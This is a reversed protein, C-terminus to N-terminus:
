KRWRIDGKRLRTEWKKIMPGRRVANEEDPRFYLTTATIQELNEIALVRVAMCSSDLSEVLEADGGTELQKQSFGTLMRQLPISNASDMRLISEHVQTASDVSWDVMTMLVRYHDNWYPRQKPESLLGDGGFYVDSTGLTVLTQGALAAIESRRFLTAERLELALTQSGDLLNLLGNRTTAEFATESPLIWAPMEFGSVLESKEMGQRRRLQGPQLDVTSEGSGISLTGENLFAETIPIRNGSALPDLGPQRFHKVELAVVSGPDALRLSLTEDGLRVPLEFNPEISTIVLRGFDVAMTLAGEEKAIWEIRAPGVMAIEGGTVALPGRFTPACVVKVGSFITAKPKLREWQNGDGTMTGIMMLTDVDQLTAVEVPEFEVATPEPQLVSDKVENEMPPRAEPPPPVPTQSVVVESGSASTSGGALAASATAGERPPQDDKTAVVGPAGNGPAGNGSTTISAVNGTAAGGAPAQGIAPDDGTPESENSSQGTRKVVEGSATPEIMSDSAVQSPIAGSDGVPGDNVVKSEGRNNPEEVRNNPEEVISGGSPVSDQDNSESAEEAPVLEDGSAPLSDSLDVSAQRKSDFLPQFLQGIVFLLVAVLGLSVLWSAMRSPRISGGYISAERDNRQPRVGAMGLQGKKKELRLESERLRAPADSVGSDQSEFPPIQNSDMEDLSGQESFVSGSQQLPKEEPPIAVGSFSGGAAIESVERDPLAYIRRRLEESVEAPRQIAIMLVQHCAAAEALHADSELCAREIEAVQEDPLTSDLYESIVNAEEIPGVADPSPALLNGNAMVERIRRVLQIAFGSEELKNRLSEADEPELSNDLYALLTRLTLRM